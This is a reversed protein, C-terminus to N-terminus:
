CGAAVEHITRLLSASCGRGCIPCRSQESAVRWLWAVDRCITSRHVGLRRAMEAQSMDRVLLEAVRKRRAMARLQRLSNYHRRGGARKYATADDVPSSWDNHM